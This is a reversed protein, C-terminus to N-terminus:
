AYRRGPKFTVLAYIILVIGYVFPVVFLSVFFVVGCIGEIIGIIKRM